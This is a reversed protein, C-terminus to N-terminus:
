SPQIDQIPEFTPKSSCFKGWGVDDL